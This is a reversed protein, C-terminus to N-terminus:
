GEGGSDPDDYEDHREALREEADRAIERARASVAGPDADADLEDTAQELAWDPPQEIAADTEPTPM